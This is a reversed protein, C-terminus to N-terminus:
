RLERDGAGERDAWGLLRRTVFRYIPKGITMWARAIWSSRQLIRRQRATLRQPLYHRKHKLLHRLDDHALARFWRGRRRSVLALQFDVLAPDGSDTVLWNPEKALDNHVVGRRHMRRLLRLATRFYRPDRPQALQMPRGAIYERELRWRDARLLRPIGDLGDLTRLARSERAALLRALPRTWRAAAAVDRCVSPPAGGPQEHLTVTGFLDRKLLVTVGTM